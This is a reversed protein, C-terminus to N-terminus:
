LSHSRNQCENPPLLPPLAEESLTGILSLPAGLLLCWIGRYWKVLFIENVCIILTEDEGVVGLDRRLHWEM